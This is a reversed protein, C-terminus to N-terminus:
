IFNAYPVAKPLQNLENLNNACMRERNTITKSNPASSNSNAKVENLLSLRTKFCKHIFRGIEIYIYSQINDPTQSGTNLHTNTTSLNQLYKSLNQESHSQTYQSISPMQDQPTSLPFHKSIHNILTSRHKSYLDCTNLFHLEDEIIDLGMSTKCWMCVRDERQTNNYRGREISLDHASIRFKTLSHRDHASIILNLYPEKSFTGKISNYFQLKSSTSKSHKWHDIFKNCIMNHIKNVNYNRSPMPKAITLHKLNINKDNVNINNQHSQSATLTNRSASVHDLTYNEDLELLCKINKYWNLNMSKQERLASFVLSEDNLDNLRNYYNLSLKICEFILPYRGSDGWVGVNSSKSHVGLVWKLFHLHIKECKNGSLQKLLNTNISAGTFTKIITKIIPSIPTWIPTGYLAIPKILADFLITLSRFSLQTKNVTRKLGYLARM